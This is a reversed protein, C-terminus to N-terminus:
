TPTNSVVDMTGSDQDEPLSAQDASVLEPSLEDVRSRKRPAELDPDQSESTTSCSDEDGSIDEVDALRKMGDQEASEMDDDVNTPLSHSDATDSSESESSLKLDEMVDPEDREAVSEPAHPVTPPEPVADPESVGQTEREAERYSAPRISWSHPCAIAMHDEERCICCRMNEPCERSEYGIGHCNFCVVNDCDRGLHDLPNCIRCAKPQDDYYVRLLFRGFRLFSPIPTHIDM